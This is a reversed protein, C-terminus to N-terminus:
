LSSLVGLNVQFGTSFVLADQRRTFTALKHELELHLDLTGNLLRSGAVGTGYLALARGAADKVDPHNALGLYNNSGLMVLERDRFRVVPDQASSLARYYPYLGAERTARVQKAM